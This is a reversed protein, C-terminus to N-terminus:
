RTTAGTGSSAAIRFVERATRARTLIDLAQEFVPDGELAVRAAAGDGSLRRALERHISRELTPREAQLEAASAPVKEAELFQV